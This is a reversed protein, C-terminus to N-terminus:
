RRRGLPAFVGATYLVLGAALILADRNMVPIAVLGVTPGSVALPANIIPWDGLAIWLVLVIGAFIGAVAAAWAIRDGASSRASMARIPARAPVVHARDIQAIRALVVASLERPAAPQPLASLGTTLAASAKLASECTACERAHHWAADLHERPYDAFPGADILWCM